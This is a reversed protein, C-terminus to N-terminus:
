CLTRSCSSLNGIEMGIDPYFSWLTDGTLSIRVRNEKEDIDLISIGDIFGKRVILDRWKKLELFNYEAKKVHSPASLLMTNSSAVDSIVSRVATEKGVDTLVLNLVGADDFFLGGFSPERRAIEAFQEDVSFRAPNKSPNIEPTLTNTEKANLESNVPNDATCGVLLFLIGVALIFLKVEYQHM